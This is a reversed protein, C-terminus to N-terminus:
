LKWALRIEVTLELGALVVSHFGIEFLCVLFRFILVYFTLHQLSPVTSLFVPYDELPSFKLECSNTIRNEPYGMGKEPRLLCQVYKTSLCKFM